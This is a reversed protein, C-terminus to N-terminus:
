RPASCEAPREKAQYSNPELIYTHGDTVRTFSHKRVVEWYVDTYRQSVELESGPSVTWRNETTDTYTDEKTTSDLWTTDTKQQNEYKAQMSAKIGGLLPISSEGELTLTGGVTNQTSEMKSTTSTLATKSSWSTTKKLDAPNATCNAQSALPRSGPPVVKGQTSVVGFCLNNGRAVYGSPCEQEAPRVREACGSGGAPCSPDQPEVPGAVDQPRGQAPARGGPPAQPQPAATTPGPVIDTGDGDSLRGPANGANGQVGGGPAQTPLLGPATPPPTTTTTPPTGPDACVYPVPPPPPAPNGPNAARWSSEWAANYTATERACREAPTEAGAEGIALVGSTTLVALVVGVVLARASFGPNRPDTSAAM